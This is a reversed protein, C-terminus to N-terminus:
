GGQVQVPLLYDVSFDELKVRDIRRKGSKISVIPILEVKPDGLATRVAEYFIRLGVVFEKAKKGNGRQSKGGGKGHTTRICKLRVYRNMSKRSSNALIQSKLAQLNGKITRYQEFQTSVARAGHPLDGSSIGLLNTIKPTTMLSNMFWPKLEAREPCNAVCIAYLADGRKDHLEVNVVMVGM